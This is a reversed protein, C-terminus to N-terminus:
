EELGFLTKPVAHFGHEKVIDQVDSVHVLTRTHITMEYPLDDTRFAVERIGKIKNLLNKKVEEMGEEMKINVSFTKGHNGPIVNEGQLSM